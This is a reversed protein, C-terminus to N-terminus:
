ISNDEGDEVETFYETETDCYIKARNGSNYYEVFNYGWVIVDKYAKKIENTEISKLYIEM